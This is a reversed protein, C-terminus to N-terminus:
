KPNIASRYSLAEQYQPIDPWELGALDALTRAVKLVRYFGRTSLAFRNIAQDMLTRQEPNLPCLQQLERSSLEANIKGQRQIQVRRANCVRQQIIQNSEGTPQDKQDLLQHNEIASVQVQLDIRDMLLGSVKTRYRAIQDPTCICRQSGLYGCPCPNMAAILQFKAPYCIQAAVRSIIIEGSELPERLVELVQRQFEPLEDLFLVGQHALSIEGPKSTSGGGVMAAASASHHPTRFPRNRSHVASNVNARSNVRSNFKSNAKANTNLSGRGIKGAVSHIAAVELAEMSSLPPLLGPLRSALMTKGIGPPGYFLLHHGGSAAIELARKAHDQGIVENLQPGHEELITATPQWPQLSERQHLHASVELLHNAPLVTLSDVLAAENANSTSIILQKQNAACGLASPLVAEVSRLEGSLALEGIFEYQELLDTPVQGSAALIGIAIALDFRTGEKPLEAPALNVTIRRAPFDFHANIIASRVRDKSEKVATEPLGVIHFVPLGNSLHVEVSVAPAQIGLKARTQVTALSM